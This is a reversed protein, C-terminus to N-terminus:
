HAMARQYANLAIGSFERQLADGVESLVDASTIGTCTFNLDGFTINPSGNVTNNTINQIARQIEGTTDSIDSLNFKMDDTDAKLAQAVMNFQEMSSINGVSFPLNDVTGNLHAKGTMSHVQNKPDLIESSQIHNFIVSGKPLDVMQPHDFVRFTGNPFVVLEPGLESILTKGGEYGWNGGFNATGEFKARGTTGGKPIFMGESEWSEGPMGMAELINLTYRANKGGITATGTYKANTVELTVQLTTKYLEKLSELSQAMSTIYGDAEALQTNLDDWENIAGAGQAKDGEGTLVATNVQGFNTVAGVLDDSVNGGGGGSEGTGIAKSVLGVQQELAGFDGVATGDSAVGESNGETKGQGQNQGETGGGGSGGINDNTAKKVAEIASVLGSGGGSSGGSPNSGGPGNNPSLPANEGGGGGGLATAVSNVAEQLEGFKDIVPQVDIQDGLTNIASVLSNEPGNILDRVEKLKDKLPDLATGDAQSLDSNLNKIANDAEGANTALTGASSGLTSVGSNAAASKNGLDEVASASEKIPKEIKEGAGALKDGVTTLNSATQDVAYSLGELYNDTEGNAGALAQIYANKFKEFAGPSDNIIDQMSIGLTDMVDKVQAYATAIQDIEQLEEWKSKQNELQELIADFAKTTEEVLNDYFEDIAALQEDIMESEENLLDIEAQKLEIAKDLADIQKQIAAIRTEDEADRLEERASRINSTDQEYVLQNGKYILRTRQNMMKQLNYQKEMLNNQRDREENAARIQDIEDQLPKKADELAKIERQKEKVLNEIEKKREEYSAKAAAREQEIAKLASDKQKNVANIRKDILTIVGSIASDYYGKLEELFSHLAKAREEAYKETDSFYKQILAKYRDLYEGLTMEGREYSEKLKSLEEEFQKVYEDAADKGASGADKKAKPSYKVTAPEVETEKLKGENRKNQIDAKIKAIEALAKARDETGKGYVNSEIGAYLELLRLLEEYVEATYGADDALALLAGCEQSTDITAMDATNEYFIYDALQGVTVGLQEAEEELGLNASEAADKLNKAVDIFSEDANESATHLAEIMETTHGVSEAAEDFINPESIDFYQEHLNHIIDAANEAQQIADSGKFEAGIQLHLYDDHVGAIVREAYSQLEDPTLAGLYNGEEDAMIPTFNLAIDGTENSFTSSFVTAVGEGADWGLKNLLEADITPRLKLDVGGGEGLSELAKEIPNFSNIDFGSKGARDIAKSLADQMEKINAQEAGEALGQTISDKAIDRYQQRIKERIEQNDSTQTEINIQSQIVEDANTIGMQTLMTKIAKLEQETADKLGDINDYVFATVLQNFAEQAGKIDKPSEEVKQIFDDYAKGCAKFTNEFETNNIISSWDFEEKDRIDNYIAAIQDMGAQLNQIDNIAKAGGVLASKFGLAEASADKIAQKVAELTAVLEQDEKNAEIVDDIMQLASMKETTVFSRLETAMGEITDSTLDYEVRLKSIEATSLEGNNLKQIAEEISSITSYYNELIKDGTITKDEDDPDPRTFAKLADQAATHTKKGTEEIEAQMTRWEEVGNHVADAYKQAREEDTDTAEITADIEEKIGQWYEAPLKLSDKYDEASLLPNANLIDQYERQHSNSSIDIGIGQGYANAVKDGSSYSLGALLGLERYLNILQQVTLGHESAYLDLDEYLEELDSGSVFIKNVLSNEDGFEFIKEINKLTEEEVEGSTIKVSLEWKDLEAQVEPYLSKLTDLVSQKEIPNLDKDDELAEAVESYAKIMDEKALEAVEANDEIRANYYEKYAQTMQVYGNEYKQNGLIRENFVYEQYFDDYQKITEKLNQIEKAINEQIYSSANNKELYDQINLLREYLEYATDAGIDLYGDFIAINDSGFKKDIDYFLQSDKAIGKIKVDVQEMEDTMVGINNEAGHIARNLWDIGKLNQTNFETKREAWQRQILKDFAETTGDVADTIENIAAKETGYKEILESQITLLRERAEKSEEYSLTNDELKKQLKEVENRYSNIDDKSSNYTKGLEQASKKLEENAQKTKYIVAAIAAFGAVIGGAVIFPAFSAWLGKLASSLTWAGTAAGEEAVALTGDAIATQIAGEEMGSYMLLTTAEAENLNLLSVTSLKTADDFGLMAESMKAMTRLDFVGGSRSTLQNFATLGKGIDSFKILKATIDPLSKIVGIGGVIGGATLVTGLLGLTSTINGIGESIATLFDILQGLDGRDILSQVTDVWTQSLRNLKFEISEEVISMEADASGAATAMNEMAREVEKFNEKGLIGALVQGGRKM